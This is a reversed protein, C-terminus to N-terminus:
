TNFYAICVLIPMVVFICLFFVVIFVKNRYDESVAYKEKFGHATKERIKDAAISNPAYMLIEEDTLLGLKPERENYSSFGNENIDILRRIEKEKAEAKLGITKLSINPNKTGCANCTVVGDIEKFNSSGCMECVLDTM